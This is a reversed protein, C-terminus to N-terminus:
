VSMNSQSRHTELRVTETNINTEESKGISIKGKDYQTKRLPKIWRCLKWSKEVTVNTELENHKQECADCITYIKRYSLQLHSFILILRLSTPSFHPQIPSPWFLSWHRATQTTCIFMTYLLSLFKKALGGLVVHGPSLITNKNVM